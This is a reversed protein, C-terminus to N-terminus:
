SFEIENNCGNIVKSTFIYEIDGISLPKDYIFELGMSKCNNRLNSADASCLVFPVNLNCTGKVSSQKIVTFCQSGNIFNMQEDCFIMKTVPNGDNSCMEKYLENLVEAGDEFKVITCEVKKKKFFKKILVEINTQHNISDDVIMIKNVNQKTTQNITINNQYQMTKLTQLKKKERPVASSENGENTTNFINGIDKDNICNSSFKRPFQKPNNFQTSIPKQIVETLLFTKSSTAKNPYIANNFECGSRKSVASQECQSNSDHSPFKNYNNQNIFTNDSNIIMNDIKTLNKNSITNNHLYEPNKNISSLETYCKKFELQNLHQQESQVTKERKLNKINTTHLPFNYMSTVAINPFAGSRSNIQPFFSTNNNNSNNARNMNFLVEDEYVLKKM